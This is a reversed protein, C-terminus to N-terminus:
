NKFKREFNTFLIQKTLQKLLQKYAISSFGELSIPKPYIMLFNFFFKMEFFTFYFNSAARQIIKWHFFFKLFRLLFFINNNEKLKKIRGENYAVIIIWKSNYYVGPSHFTWRYASSSWWNTIDQSSDVYIIRPHSLYVRM